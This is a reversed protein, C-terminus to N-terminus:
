DAGPEVPDRGDTVPERVLRAGQEQFAFTRQMQAGTYIPRVRVNRFMVTGAGWQLAIPGYTHTGDHGDVTTVGNLEIVIHDGEATIRYTNWQGGANVIESPPLYNPVGGTRGSQDPRNDFINAEYCTMDTINSVTDCRFFVGSNHEESVYFEVSLEFDAYNDPSVLFSGATGTTAQAVGDAFTWNADGVVELGDLGNALLDVWGDDAAPMTACAAAALGALAAVTTTRIVHTM